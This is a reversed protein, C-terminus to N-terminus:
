RIRSRSLSLPNGSKAGREEKKLDKKRKKKWVHLGLATIVDHLQFHLEICSETPEDIRCTLLSCKTSNYQVLSISPLGSNLTGLRLRVFM